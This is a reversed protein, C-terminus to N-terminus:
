ETSSPIAHLTWAPNSLAVPLDLTSGAPAVVLRFGYKHGLAQWKQLTRENWTEAAIEFYSSGGIMAVQDSNAYDIGYLDGMLIKVQPALSPNYSLTYLTGLDMLVPQGTKAQIEQPQSLFAPLIMENPDANAKLWRDLEQDYESVVDWRGLDYNNEGQIAHLKDLVQVHVLTGVGVLFCAAIMALGLGSSWSQFNFRTFQLAKPGIALAASALLFSALFSTAVRSDPSVLLLVGALAGVMALTALGDVLRRGGSFMELSFLLGWVSFILYRVGVSGRLLPALFRLSDGGLLMYIGTLLVLGTILIM